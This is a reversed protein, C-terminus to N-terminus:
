VKIMEQVMRRAINSDKLVEDEKAAVRDLPVSDYAKVINYLIGSFIKVLRFFNGM